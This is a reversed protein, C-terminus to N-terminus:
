RRGLAAKAERTLKADPAGAALTTLVRRAAPTGILELAWVGRLELRRGPSPSLPLSTLLRDLRVAQEPSPKGARAARLEPEIEEGLGALEESAAERVAFDENGLEAIRRRVKAGDIKEPPRIIEALFPVAQDPSAALAWVAAYAKAADDAALDAKLAALDKPSLKRGAPAPPKAPAPTEWILATGDELGAVFRRGDPSFAVTNIDSEHGVLRTIERGTAVDWFRISHRGPPPTIWRTGGDATALVRGGLQFAVATVPRQHETFIVTEKATAVEWLRVRGSTGGTALLRDDPSFAAVLTMEKLHIQRERVRDLDCLRLQAAKSAGGAVWRGNRSVTPSSLDVDAIGLKRLPKEASVDWTQLSTAGEEPQWSATVITKDRENFAILRVSGDHVFERVQEGRTVDWVRARNNSEWAPALLQGDPSFSVQSASHGKLLRVQRGTASDWVRIQQNQGGTVLLRGDPSYAVSRIPADHGDTLDSRERGTALDWVRVVNYVSGMAVTKGDASLAMSRGLWGRSDLVVPERKNAIDWVRVKADESGSILSRGDPTFALNLVGNMGKAEFRVIEKGTAVDSVIIRDHRADSGTAIMKGDPSIALSLGSQEPDFGRLFTGTQTDWLQVAPKSATLFLTKGDPSFALPPNVHKHGRIAAVRRGTAVEWVSVVAEETSAAFLKGDPSFCIPDRSGASPGQASPTLARVLTKTQPSWLQVTGGHFRCALVTGDPSFAITSPAQVGHRLNPFRHHVQGTTTEFLTITGDNHSLLALTKGDPSFSISQAEGAHRWRASGLRAVAGAPLADGGADVVPRPEETPAEATPPPPAVSRSPEGAVLGVAVAVCALLGAVAYLGAP